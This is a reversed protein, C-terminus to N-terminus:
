EDTRDEGYRPVSVCRQYRIQMRKVIERVSVHADMSHSSRASPSSTVSGSETSSAQSGSSAVSGACHGESDSDSYPPPPSRLRSRDGGQPLADIIAPVPVGDAAMATSETSLELGPSPHAIEHHIRPAAPGDILCGPRASFTSVTEIPSDPDVLALFLSDM